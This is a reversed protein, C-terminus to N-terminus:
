LGRQVGRDIFYHTRSYPTLVRIRRRKIMGDLDGTWLAAETHRTPLSYDPESSGAPPKAAPSPKAAPPKPSPTGSPPHEDKPAAAQPDAGGGAGLWLALILANMFAGRETTQPRYDVM